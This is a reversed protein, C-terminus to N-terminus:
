GCHRFNEDDGEGPEAPSPARQESRASSPAEEGAEMETKRKENEVKGIAVGRFTGLGSEASIGAGTLVAVRRAGRLAGAIEGIVADDMWLAYGKVSAWGAPIGGGAWRYGAHM